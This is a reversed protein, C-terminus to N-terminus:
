GGKVIRGVSGFREQLQARVVGFLREYMERTRTKMIAAVLTKAEKQSTPTEVFGHVTYLQQMDKPRCKFNGDSVRHASRHLKELNDPSAFVAMEFGPTDDQYILYTQGFSADGELAFRSSWPMALVEPIEAVLTVVPYKHKRAHQYGRM